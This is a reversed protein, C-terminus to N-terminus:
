DGDSGEAIASELRGKLRWLDLGLAGLLADQQALLERARGQAERAVALNELRVRRQDALRAEHRGLEVLAAAYLRSASLVWEAELTQRQRLDAEFGAERGARAQALAEGDRAADATVLAAEQKLAGDVVDLLPDVSPPTACGSIGTAAQVACVAACSWRTWRGGKRRGIQGIM